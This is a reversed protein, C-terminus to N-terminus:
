HQNVVKIWEILDSRCAGAPFTGKVSGYLSNTGFFSFESTQTDYNLLLGKYQIDITGKCYPCLIPMEIDIDSHENVYTIFQFVPDIGTIMVSIDAIWKTEDEDSDGFGAYM